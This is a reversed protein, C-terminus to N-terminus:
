RISWASRATATAAPGKFTVHYRKSGTGRDVVRSPDSGDMSFFASIRGKYASKNFLFRTGRLDGPGEEGV